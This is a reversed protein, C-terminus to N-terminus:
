YALVYEAKFADILTRLKRIFTRVASSSERFYDISLRNNQDLLFFQLFLINFFLRAIYTASIIVKVEQQDTVIAIYSTAVCITIGSKFISHKRFPVPITLAALISHISCILMLFHNLFGKLIFKININFILYLLYGQFGCLSM